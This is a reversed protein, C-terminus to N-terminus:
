DPAMAAGETARMKTKLRHVRDATDEVEALLSGIVRPPFAPSIKM